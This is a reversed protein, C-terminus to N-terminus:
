FRNGQRAHLIEVACHNTVECPELSAPMLLACLLSFSFGANRQSLLDYIGMRVAAEWYQQLTISIGSNTNLVLM